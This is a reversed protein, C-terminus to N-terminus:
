LSGARNLKKFTPQFKASARAIERDSVKISITQRASGSQKVSNNLNRLLGSLEADTQKTLVREGDQLIARKENVRLKRNFNTESGSGSGVVGGEHFQVAGVAAKGAAQGAVIVPIKALSAGFSGPAELIAKTIEAQAWADITSNLRGKLIEGLKKSANGESSALEDTLQNSIDTISTAQEEAANKRKENEEAEMADSQKQSEEGQEKLIDAKSATVTIEAATGEDIIKKRKEINKSTLENLKTQADENIKFIADNLSETERKQKLAANLFADIAASSGKKIIKFINKFLNQFFKLINQVISAWTEVKFPRTLIEVMVAQFIKARRELDIFYTQILLVVQSFNKNILILGDTLIKSIGSDGGFLSFFASKINNILLTFQSSLTNLQKETAKTVVGSSNAVQKQIDNLDKFENKSLAIVGNLAETSGFLKKLAEQNGGTARTVENLFGALGRAQLANADFAIGLRQAEKKAQETPGIIATLAAKLQTVAIPTKIGQKTLASIGGLLEDFSVGAAKAIPAIQGISQSLEQITTKGAQQASFFKDAIVEADNAAFGYANMASTLGDVATKTDTVGAVALKASTELFKLSEGVEVGASVVDFLGNALDQSAVPIRQSIELIGDSFNQIEQGTAGFLNGVDILKQEFNAFEKIGLGIAAGLAAISLKSTLVKKTFNGLTSGIKRIGKSAKDTLTVILNAKQAM